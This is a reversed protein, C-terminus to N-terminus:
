DTIASHLNDITETADDVTTSDNVTNDQVLERQLPNNRAVHLIRLISITMFKDDEVVLEERCIPCTLSCRTLSKFICTSHFIHNCKTECKESTINELCICCTSM